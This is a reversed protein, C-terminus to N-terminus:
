AIQGASRPFQRYEEGDVLHGSRQGGWRKFFFPVGAHQCQDRLSRVWEPDVPRAGSGTEGGVIVWDLDNSVVGSIRDLSAQRCRADLTRYFDGRSRVRLLLDIPGLLPECSVFRIAAPTDLLIPIRQDVAQQNEASVGLMVNPVPDASLSPDSGVFRHMREPRKTLLMFVHHPCRKMVAFVRDLFWDPVDEHFLDSMSCVFIKRPKRWHRPQNLRDPHLTVRFPDDAPYGCRGRIRKAFREAYCHKCGASIKTCGTVPNWTVDTWEINTRAGM